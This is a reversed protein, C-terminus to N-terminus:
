AGASIGMCQVFQDDSASIVNVFCNLRLMRGLSGHNEVVMVNTGVLGGVKNNGGPALSFTGGGITMVIFESGNPPNTNLLRVHFLADGADADHTRVEVGTGPWKFLLVEDASSLARGYLIRDKAVFQSPDVLSKASDAVTALPVTGLSSEDIDAGSLSGDAVDVSKVGKKNAIDKSQVKGDGIQRSKVAGKKIDGSGIKDAAYATGGLAVFLALYAVFNSRVHETIRSSM